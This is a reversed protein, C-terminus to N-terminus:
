QALDTSTRAEGQFLVTQALQPEVMSKYCNPCIGHSFRVDANASVYDEVRQWYNKDDRINKCYCCIPLLGSLQKIQSLAGELERVRSELNQQLQVIRVGTQLRAFFEDRDFPKTIYDDAGTQLGQIIDSKEKNSTLLILYISQKKQRLKRCLELGNKGPMMWDLIAIPPPKPGQLLNWAMTGDSAVVPQYGWKVLATKVLLRYGADDDALLIRM